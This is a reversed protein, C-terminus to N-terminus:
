VLWGGRAVCGVFLLVRLKGLPKNWWLFARRMNMSMLNKYTAGGFFSFLALNFIKEKM